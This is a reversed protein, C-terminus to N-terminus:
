GDGRDALMGASTLLMGFGVIVTLVLFLPDRATAYLAILTAVLLARVVLTTPYLPSVRKRVIEVVIVGLALMLGGMLRALSAPYSATAGLLRLALAPDALLGVGGLVLYSALYYFSTRTWRNM